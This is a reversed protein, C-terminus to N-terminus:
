SGTPSCWATVATRSSARCTGDKGIIAALRSLRRLRHQRRPDPHGDDRDAPRLLAPQLRRFHEGWRRSSSKPESPIPRMRVAVYSISFFGAALITAMAAWPRRLTRSGALFVPIGNSIAEVGVARRCGLRVGSCLHLPVRRRHLTRTKLSRVKRCLTPPRFRCHGMSSSSSGVGSLVALMGIYAYTPVSLVERVGEAWPPQGGDPNGPVRPLAVAPRGSDHFSSSLALTGAAISVAVTLVYDVLLSAGAVLSPM